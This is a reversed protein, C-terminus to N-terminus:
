MEFSIYQTLLVTPYRSNYKMCLLQYELYREAEVAVTEAFWGMWLRHGSLPSYTILLSSFLLLLLFIFEFTVSLLLSWLLPTSLVYRYFIQIIAEKRYEKCEKPSGVFQTEWHYSTPFEFLRPLLTTWHHGAVLYFLLFLIYHIIMSPLNRESEILHHEVSLSYYPPSSLISLYRCFLTDSSLNILRPSGNKSLPWLPFYTVM